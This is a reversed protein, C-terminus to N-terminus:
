FVVHPVPETFLFYNENVPDLNTQCLSRGPAQSVALLQWTIFENSCAFTKKGKGKKRGGEREGKRGKKEGEKRKEKRGEKM